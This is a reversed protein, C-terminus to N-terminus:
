GRSGAQNKWSRVVGSEKKFGSHCSLARRLNILEALVRKNQGLESRGFM